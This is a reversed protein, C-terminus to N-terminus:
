GGKPNIGPIVIGPPGQQQQKEEIKQIARAKLVGQVVASQITHQFSVRALTELVTDQNLIGGVEVGPVTPLIILQGDKSLVSIGFDFTGEPLALEEVEVVRPFDDGSSDNSDEGIDESDGIFKVDSERDKTAM